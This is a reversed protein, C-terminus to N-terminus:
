AAINRRESANAKRNAHAKRIAQRTLPKIKAADIALQDLTDLWARFARGGDGERGEPESAYAQHLAQAGALKTRNPARTGRGDPLGATSLAHLVQAQIERPFDKWQERAHREAERRATARDGAGGPANSPHQPVELLGGHQWCKDSGTVAPNRCPRGAKSRCSCPRALRAAALAEATHRERLNALSQPAVEGKAKPKRGKHALECLLKFRKWGGVPAVRGKSKPAITM